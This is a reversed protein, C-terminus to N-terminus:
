FVKKARLESSAKKLDQLEQASVYRDLSKTVPADM